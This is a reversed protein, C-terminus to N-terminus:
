PSLTVTITFAIDTDNAYASVPLSASRAFPAGQLALQYSRLADRTGSTGSITLVGSNKGLPPVYSFGSLTIGSRPISLTARIIASISPTHSLAALAATDSSLAALRSLLAIEEASSYTSAINALHEEKAAASINLFVYTPVLLAAAALVLITTLVIAVVGIRFRYDWALARLREPPLLNTLENHMATPIM